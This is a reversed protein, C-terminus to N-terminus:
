KSTNQSLNFQYLGYSEILNLFFITKAYNDAIKLIKAYPSPSRGDNDDKIESTDRCGYEKSSGANSDCVILATLALTALTFHINTKEYNL